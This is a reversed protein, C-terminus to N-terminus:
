FCSRTISQSSCWLSSHSYMHLLKLTQAFPKHGYARKDENPTSPKPNHYVAVITLQISPKLLPSFRGLASSLLVSHELELMQRREISDTNSATTLALTINSPRQQIICSWRNRKKTSLRCTFNRGYKYFKDNQLSLYLWFIHFKESQESSCTM